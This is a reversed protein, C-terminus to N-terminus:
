RASGDAGFLGQVVRAYVLGEPSATTERLRTAPLHLFEEVIRGALAEVARRAEPSLSRLRRDARALGDARVQDGYRRLSAIAVPDVPAAPREATVGGFEGWPLPVAVESVAQEAKERAHVDACL